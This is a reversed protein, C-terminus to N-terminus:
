LLMNQVLKSLFSLFLGELKTWVVSDFLLLISNL